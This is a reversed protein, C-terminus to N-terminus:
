TNETVNSVYTTTRLNRYIYSKVRVVTATLVFVYSCQIQKCYMKKWVKLRNVMFEQNFTMALVLSVVHVAENLFFNLFFRLDPGIYTGCVGTYKM